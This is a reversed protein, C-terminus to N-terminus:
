EMSPPESPKRGQQCDFLDQESEYIRTRRKENRRRGHIYVTLVWPTDVTDNKETVIEIDVGKGKSERAEGGGFATHWERTKIPRTPRFLREADGIKYGLKISVEALGRFYSQDKQHEVHLRRSKMSAAQTLSPGSSPLAQRSPRSARLELLRSDFIRCTPRVSVVARRRDHLGHANGTTTKTWSNDLGM